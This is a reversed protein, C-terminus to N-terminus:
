QIYIFLVISIVRCSKGIYKFSIHPHIHIYTYTHADKTNYTPSYPFHLRCYLISTKARLLELLVITRWQLYLHHNINDVYINNYYYYYNFLLLLLYIIIFLLLEIRGIPAPSVYWCPTASRAVPYFSVSHFALVM